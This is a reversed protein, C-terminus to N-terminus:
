QTAMACSSANGTTSITCISWRPAPVEDLLQLRKRIVVEDGAEVGLWAAIDGPVPGRGTMLM